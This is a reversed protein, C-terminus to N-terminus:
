HSEHLSSRTVLTATLGALAPCTPWISAAADRAGPVARHGRRLPGNDRGPHDTKRSVPHFGRRRSDQPSYFLAAPVNAGEAGQSGILLTTLGTRWPETLYPKPMRLKDKGELYATKGTDYIKPETLKHEFFGRHNYWEQEKDKPHLKLPDRGYEADQTLSPWLTQSKPQLM